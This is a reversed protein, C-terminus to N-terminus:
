VHSAAGTCTPHSRCGRCRATHAPWTRPSCWRCCTWRDTAWQHVREGIQANREGWNVICTAKICHRPQQRQLRPAQLYCASGETQMWTSPAEQGARADTVTSVPQRQRQQDAPAMIPMSMAYLRCLQKPLQNGPTLGSVTWTRQAAGGRPDGPSKTSAADLQSKQQQGAKCRRCIMRAVGQTETWRM